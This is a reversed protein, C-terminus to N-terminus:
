GVTAACFRVAHKRGAWPAMFSLGYHKTILTVLLKNVVGYKKGLVDGLESFKHLLSPEGLFHFGFTTFWNSPTYCQEMFNDSATESRKAVFAVFGIALM